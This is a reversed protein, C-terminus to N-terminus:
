FSEMGALVKQVLTVDDISIKGDKDVDALVKQEDTFALMNALYKQIDTADDITIKGDGNVDGLLKTIVEGLSTFNIDHENAFAEAVSGTYGYITLEDSHDNFATSDIETVNEHITIETLSKCGEFASEGIETVSEPITVSKLNQCGKFVSYGIRTVSEPISISELNDFFNFASDAIGRTGDKLVISTNEPMTGNYTLAWGDAYVVSDPQSNFLATKAFASGGISKVSDPITVSALNTCSFFANLGIRTVGDPIKITTLSSCTAFAYNDIIKVSNPITINPLNKCGGFAYEGIIILGNGLTVSTLNCMGFTWSGISTVSDPIVVSTLSTCKYFARRGLSTVTYGDLESPITLTEASGSYGTIEATGNNLVEYVFDGSTAASATFPIVAFIGFIMIVALFVSTLKTFKTKM